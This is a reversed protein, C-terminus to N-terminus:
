RPSTCDTPQAGCLDPRMSYEHQTQEETEIDDELQVIRGLLALRRVEEQDKAAKAWAKEEQVQKKPCRTLQNDLVIRGPHVNANSRCTMVTMPIPLVLSYWHFPTTHTASVGGM